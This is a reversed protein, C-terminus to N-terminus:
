GSTTTHQPPATFLFFPSRQSHPKRLNQPFRCLRVKPSPATPRLPPAILRGFSVRSALAYSSATLGLGAAAPSRHTAHFFFSARRPRPGSHSAHPAISRLHDGRALSAPATCAPRPLLGPAHQNPVEADSPRLTAYRHVGRREYPRPAVRTGFQVLQEHAHLITPFPRSKQQPERFSTVLAGSPARPADHDRSAPKDDHVAPRERVRHAAGAM